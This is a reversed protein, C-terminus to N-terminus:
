GGSDHDDPCDGGLDTLEREAQARAEERLIPGRAHEHPTAIRLATGRVHFRVGRIRSADAAEIDLHSLMVRHGFVAVGYMPQGPAVTVHLNSITVDIPAPRKPDSRNVFFVADAAIPDGDVSHLRVPGLGLSVVCAGDSTITTNDHSVWLGRTAYCRGDSLKPLFITGGGRDLRAQLWSTDDGSRPPSVPRTVYWVLEASATAKM